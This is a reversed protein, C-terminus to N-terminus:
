SMGERERSPAPPPSNRLENAISQLVGDMNGLVDNNWFRIVRYGRAALWNTRRNDREQDTAHQGGDVEVVPGRERCIFDCVFPGIGRQRTFKFGSLQRLRLHSWLRREADTPNNRLHQARKTPRPRFQPM